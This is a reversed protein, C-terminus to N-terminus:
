VQDQETLRRSVLEHKLEYVSRELMEQKAQLEEVKEQSKFYDDALNIELLVTRMENDLNRYSDLTKLEAIKTNIYAAVKQLYEESEFGSLTIKKNNIFVETDNRKNAM